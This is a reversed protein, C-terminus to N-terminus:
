IQINICKFARTGDYEYKWLCLKHDIIQIKMSLAVGNTNQPQLNTNRSYQCIFDNLHFLIRTIEKILNCEEKIQQLTCNFTYTICQIRLQIEFGEFIKDFVSISLQFKTSDNM